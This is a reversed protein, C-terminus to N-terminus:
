MEFSVATVNSLVVGGEIPVVTKLQFGDPVPHGELFLFGVGFM